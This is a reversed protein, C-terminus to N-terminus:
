MDIERIREHATHTVAFAPLENGVGEGGLAQSGQLARDSECSQDGNVHKGLVDIAPVVDESGDLM